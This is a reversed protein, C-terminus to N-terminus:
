RLTAQSLLAVGFDERYDGYDDDEDIYDSM